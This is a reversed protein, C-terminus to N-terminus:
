TLSVQRSKYNINLEKGKMLGSGFLPDISSTLLIEVEKEEGDIIAKGLFVLEESISGDALECKQMSWLELGLQIALQTSLCLEGDSGTDILADLVIGRKAGIVRIKICPYGRENFFGKM